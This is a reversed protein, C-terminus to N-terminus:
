SGDVEYVPKGYRSVVVDADGAELAVTLFKVSPICGTLPVGEIAQLDVQQDGGL